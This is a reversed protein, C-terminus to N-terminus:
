VMTTGHNIFIWQFFPLAASFRHVQGADGVKELAAEVIQSHGYLSPM